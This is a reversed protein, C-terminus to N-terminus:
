PKTSPRAFWPNTRVQWQGSKDAKAGSGWKDGFFGDVLGTSTLNKVTDIYLQVGTVTDFGFVGIDEMGNDNRISIPKKTSSDITLANAAVFKGNATYFPFALLTNWYLVASVGPAKAQV